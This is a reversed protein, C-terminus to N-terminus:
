RFVTLMTSGSYAGGNATFQVTFRVRAAAAPWDFLLPQTASSGPAITGVLVPMPSLVSVVGSGDMVQVNTIGGIRADVAVSQGANRIQLAVQRQGPQPGDSRQGTTAFLAPQAAPAFNAVVTAPDRLTLNQPNATGSLAGSFGTFRYGSNATAAIPIVGTAVYWGGGSVSGGATPNATTTIFINRQYTVTLTAPANPAVYDIVNSGPVSWVQYIWRVLASEEVLGPAAFRYARGPILNVTAPLTLPAGNMTVAVGPANSQLTIPVTDQTVFAATVARPASMVVAGTLQTGALAGSWGALRYGPSPSATLQAVQDKVYWNGAAAPVIGISGGTTADAQLHYEPVFSATFVGGSISASISNTQTGGHAWNAFRYRTNADGQLSNTSLQHTSGPAWTFVAPTTYPTNDVVLQLGPPNSTVVTEGVVTFTVNIRATNSGLPSGIDIYGNYVGPALGGPNAYVLPNAPTNPNELLMSLWPASSNVVLPVSSQFADSIFVASLAKAGSSLLSVAAPQVNLVTRVALTVTVETSGQTPSLSDSVKVTCTYSGAALSSAAPLVQLGLSPQSLSASLWACPSALQATLATSFNSLTATQAAPLPGGKDLQFQVSAPSAAIRPLVTVVVEGSESALNAVDGSYSAAFRHVGVPLGPINVHLSAAANVTRKTSFPDDASVRVVHVTGTPSTSAPSLTLDFDPPDPFRVPNVRPALTIATPFKVHLKCAFAYTSVVASGNVAYTAEFTADCVHTGPSLLAAGSGIQVAVDVYNSDAPVYATFPSGFSLWSVSSRMKVAAGNPAFFRVTVPAPLPGGPKMSFSASGPQAAVMGANGKRYGLWVEDAIGQRRVEDGLTKNQFGNAPYAFEYREATTNFQACISDGISKNWAYSATTIKWLRNQSASGPPKVLGCVLRKLGSENRSVWRSTSPTMAAPGGGGWDNVDWSWITSNVRDDAPATRQAINLDSWLAKLFDLGIISVGCNVASRVTEEWLFGTFADIEVSGYPTTVTGTFNLGTRGEAVDWWNAAPRTLPTTGDSATCTNFNQTAPHNDVLTLGAANWTVNNGAPATRDHQMVMVQKGAARIEAMAPWRTFVAPPRYLFPGLVLDIEDRMLSAAANVDNWKLFVVEGPNAWLWNRIERLAFGFLRTAYGPILCNSTSKSHCLRSAPSRSVLFDTGYYHPDLELHRVGINLQDSISYYHNTYLFSNFGQSVNSFANHSGLLSVYNVPENQSISYRQEALAWGLWGAQKAWTHRRKNVCIGDKPELDAECRAETWYSINYREWQDLKCIQEGENGCDYTRLQAAAPLAACLVVSALGAMNSRLKM